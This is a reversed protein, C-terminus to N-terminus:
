GSHDSLFNRFVIMMKRSSAKFELLFDYIRVRFSIRLPVTQLLAFFWLDLISCQEGIAGCLCHYTNHLGV